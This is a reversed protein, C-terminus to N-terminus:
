RPHAFLDAFAGWWTHQTAEPRKGANALMEIFMAEVQNVYYHIVSPFSVFKYFPADVNLSKLYSIAEKFEESTWIENIEGINGSSRSYVEVANSTKTKLTELHVRAAEVVNTNDNNEIKGFAAGHIWLVDISGDYLFQNIKNDIIVKRLLHEYKYSNYYKFLFTLHEKARLIFESNQELNECSVESPCKSWLLKSALDALNDISRSLLFLMKLSCEDHRTHPLFFPETFASLTVMRDYLYKTQNWLEQGQIKEYSGMLNAYHTKYFEVTPIAHNEELDWRLIPKTTFGFPWWSPFSSDDGGYKVFVLIGLTLVSLLVFLLKFHLIVALFSSPIRRLRSAITIPPSRVRAVLARIRIPVSGFLFWVVTVTVVVVVLEFVAVFVHTLGKDEAQDDTTISTSTSAKSKKPVPPFANETLIEQELFSPMVSVQQSEALNNFYGNEEFYFLGVIVLGLLCLVLTM